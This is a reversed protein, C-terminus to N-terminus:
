NNGTSNTSGTAQSLLRRHCYCCHCYGDLRVECLGGGRWYLIWWRPLSWVLAGWYGFMCYDKEGRCLSCSWNSMWISRERGVKSEVRDVLMRKYVYSYLEYIKRPSSNQLFSMRMCHIVHGSIVWCRLNLREWLRTFLAHSSIMCAGAEHKVVLFIALSQITLCKCVSSAICSIPYVCRSILWSAQDQDLLFFYHSHCMTYRSRQTCPSSPTIICTTNAM